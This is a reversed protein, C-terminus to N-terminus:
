PSFYSFILSYVSICSKHFTYIYHTTSQPGSYTHHYASTHIIYMYLSTLVSLFSSQSQRSPSASHHNSHCSICLTSTSHIEELSYHTFTHLIKSSQLIITRGYKATIKSLSQFSQENVYACMSFSVYVTSCLTIAVYLGLIIIIITITLSLLTLTTKTLGCVHLYKILTHLHLSHNQHNDSLHPTLNWDFSLFWWGPTTM